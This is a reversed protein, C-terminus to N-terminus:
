RAAPTSARSGRGLLLITVLTAAFVALQAGTPREVYGILTHLARGLLSGQSVLASSDWLETTGITVDFHQQLLAVGDAAMGAAVLALLWGSIAFMTRASLRLLGAYFTAGCAAAVVAGIIGGMLVSGGGGGAATAGALFLVTEVGERAVAVAVVISLAYAPREGALVAAGAATVERTLEAAHRAMWAAHGALMAAAVLLATADIVETPIAELADTAISLVLAAIVAIVLGALTGGAVLTRRWPLGKAAALVLGIILGAELTERFVIIFAAVM